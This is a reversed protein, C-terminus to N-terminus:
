EYDRWSERQGTATKEHSARRRKEQAIRSGKLLKAGMQNEKGLKSEHCGSCLLQTNLYTTRGGRSVPVIHDLHRAEPKGCNECCGNLVDIKHEKIAKFKPGYPDANSTGHALRQAVSPGKAKKSRSDSKGLGGRSPRFTM